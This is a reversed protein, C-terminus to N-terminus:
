DGKSFDDRVQKRHQEDVISLFVDELSPLIEEINDVTIRTKIFEKNLRDVATKDQALVHLQVGHLSVDMVGDVGRAIKEAQAPQDCDVQLLIGKMNAKLTDPSALAILKSQYMMGIVNCYEAEDMYHTTALISVGQAAMEYIMDWFQRRSIPDVGATPEDLFLMPPRHAIACALALRQRWAGSLNRVLSNQHNALGAIDILDTIRNKRESRPVGYIACYFSLNEWATLDNYLSFKQSMYGIRKKVEEPRKNVDFGLVTANGSTPSLIGCLMRITTTKGAGNPGLLGFIEGKPIFFSVQDVAIMKGFKRSLERSELANEDTM